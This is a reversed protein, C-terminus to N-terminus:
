RLCRYLHYTTRVPQHRLSTRVNPDRDCFLSRTGPQHREPLLPLPLTLKGFWIQMLLRRCSHRPNKQYTLRSILPNGSVTQISTIAGSAHTISSFPLLGKPSALSFKAHIKRVSPRPSLIFDQFPITQATMNDTVSGKPRRYQCVVRKM